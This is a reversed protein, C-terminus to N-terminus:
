GKTAAKTRQGFISGFLESLVVSQEAVEPFMFNLLKPKVEYSLKRGKSQRNDTPRSKRKLKSRGLGGGGGGGRRVSRCRRSTGLERRALRSIVALRRRRSRRPVRPVM